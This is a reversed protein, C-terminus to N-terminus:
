KMKQVLLSSHLVIAVELLGLRPKCIDSCYICIEVLIAIRSFSLKRSDM